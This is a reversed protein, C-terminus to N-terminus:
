EELVGPRGREEDGGGGGGGIKLGEGVIELGEEGGRSNRVGM